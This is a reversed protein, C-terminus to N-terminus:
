FVLLFFFEISVACGAVGGALGSKIIYEWSRKDPITQIVLTSTVGEDAPRIPSDNRLSDPASITPRVPVMYAPNSGNPM